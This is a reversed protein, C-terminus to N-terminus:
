GWVKRIGTGVSFCVMLARKGNWYKFGRQNHPMRLRVNAVSDYIPEPRSGSISDRAPVITAREKKDERGTKEDSQSSMCLANQSTLLGM